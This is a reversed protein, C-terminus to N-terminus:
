GGPMPGMQMRPQQHQQTYPQMGTNRQASPMFTSGAPESGQGMQQMAQQQRQIQRQQEAAHYRQMLGNLSAQQAEQLLLM